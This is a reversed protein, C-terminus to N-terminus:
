GRIILPGFYLWLAIALTADILHTLPSEKISLQIKEGYPFGYYCVFVLDWGIPFCILWIVMVIDSM